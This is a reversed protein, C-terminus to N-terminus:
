VQRSPAEWLLLGAQRWRKEFDKDEKAYVSTLENVLLRGIPKNAHLIAALPGLHNSEFSLVVANIDEPHTHSRYIAKPNLLTGYIGELFRLPINHRFIMKELNAIKMALPLDPFGLDLYRQPTAGIRIARGMVTNAQETLLTAHTTQLVLEYNPDKM